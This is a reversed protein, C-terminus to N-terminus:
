ADPLGAAEFRGGWRQIDPPLHWAGHPRSWREPRRRLELIMWLTGWALRWRMGGTYASSGAPRVARPVPISVVPLGACGVLVPWQPVPVDWSLVAQVARRDLVGFGGADGPIGCLWGRLRRFLWGSLWRGWPEYRGRRGAFVVAIRGNGRAMAEMLVPIAEPPDQLDADMIVTWHGRVEHLGIWIARAQGVNRPLALVAVRPDQAALRRLVEGSGEPCADEVFLLEWTQGTKELAARLRVYLPELTAANRYVPIVVSLDLEPPRFAHPPLADPKALASVSLSSM